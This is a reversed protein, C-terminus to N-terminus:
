YVPRPAINRAAGIGVPMSLAIGFVTACVTMTISEQLGILIDDARTTFNPNIFGQVFRWGRGLGEALRMWNVNISSLAAILYALVALYIAWRLWSSSILPPKRWVRSAAAARM